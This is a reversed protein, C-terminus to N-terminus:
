LPTSAAAAQGPEVTQMRRRTVAPGDALEPYAAILTEPLAAKPTEGFEMQLQLANMVAKARYHNNYFVYTDETRRAM